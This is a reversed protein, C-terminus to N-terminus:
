GMDPLRIGIEANADPTANWYGYREATQLFHEIAEASPPGGETDPAGVERFFRGIRTTSIVIM